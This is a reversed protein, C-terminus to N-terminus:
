NPTPSSRFFICLSLCMSRPALRSDEEAQWYKRLQADTVKEAELERGGNGPVAKSKKTSKSKSKSPPERIAIDVGDEPEPKAEAEEPEGLEPESIKVDDVGPIQAELEDGLQAIAPESLKKAATDDQRTNPKTVRASKNNFSLTSQAASPGSAKAKRSRPM